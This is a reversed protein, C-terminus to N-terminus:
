AKKFPKMQEVTDAIDNQIKTMNDSVVAEPLSLKESSYQAAYGASMIMSIWSEDTKFRSTTKALHLAMEIMSVDYPSVRKDLLTSAITSAKTFLNMGLETERIELSVVADELVQKRNM